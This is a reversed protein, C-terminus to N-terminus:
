KKEGAVKEAKLREILLPLVQHLDGVVGLDAFRFIRAKPDINIAIVKRSKEMGATYENAGSIGSNIILQPTVAKGTQGIQREYALTQWDVVPRTGAVSGGIAAALEHIIEFRKDKGVGRGGAVVIDAEGIDLNEPSAEIVAVVDTKLNCGSMDPVAKVIVEATKESTQEPTNLVPPLLTVLYPPPGDFCVKESLHGNAIPRTVTVAGKDDLKLDIARTVACGGNLGALRPAMDATQDTHAMLFLYPIEKGMFASLIGAFYEGNFREAQSNKFHLVRSVGYRGLEELPDEFGNGVAIATIDGEGAIESILRVAESVLGLTEDEIIGERQHVWIWINTKKM